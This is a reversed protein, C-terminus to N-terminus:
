KGKKKLVLGASDKMTYCKKAADYVWSEYVENSPKGDVIYYLLLTANDLKWSCEIDEKETAIKVKNGSFNYTAMVYNDYETNIGEYIGAPKEAAAKVAPKAPTKIPATKKDAAGAAVGAIVSFCLAITM